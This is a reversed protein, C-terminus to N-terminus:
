APKGAGGFSILIKASKPGRLGQLVRCGAAVEVAHSNRPTQAAAADLSASRDRGERTIQTAGALLCRPM